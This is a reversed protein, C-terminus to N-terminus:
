VAARPNPKNRGPHRSRGCNNAGIRKCSLVLVNRLKGLRPLISLVPPPPSACCTRRVVAAGRTTQTQAHSSAPTVGHHLTHRTAPHARALRVRRGQCPYVCTAPTERTCLVATTDVLTHTHTHSLTRTHIHTYACAQSAIVCAHVNMGLLQVCTGVM